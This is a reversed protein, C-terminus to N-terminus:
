DIKNIKYKKVFIIMTIIIIILILIVSFFYNIESYNNNSNKCNSDLQKILKTLNINLQSLLNAAQQMDPMNRVLYEKNDLSSKVYSVESSKAELYTYYALRSVATDCNKLENLKGFSLVIEEKEDEAGTVKGQYSELQERTIEKEIYYIFLVQDSEGTSTYSKDLLVLDKVDISFDPDVEEQLEKIATSKVDGNDIMGAPISKITKAVPTRFENTFITYEEDDVKLVILIAVSDGRLFSIGPVYKDNVKTTAEVDIFGIRDGFFHVKHITIKEIVSNENLSNFWNEYKDSTLVRNKQEETLSERFVLEM